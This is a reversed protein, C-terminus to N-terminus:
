WEKYGDEYIVAPGYYRSPMEKAIFRGVKLGFATTYHKGVFNVKSKLIVCEIIVM